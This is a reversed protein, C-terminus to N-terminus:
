LASKSCANLQQTSYGYGMKHKHKWISFGMLFQIKWHVEFINFNKIKLGMKDKLLVLNRTFTEWYSNNTIVSFVNKNMFNKTM